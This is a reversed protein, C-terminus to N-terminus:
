ASAINLNDNKRKMYNLKFINVLETYENIM